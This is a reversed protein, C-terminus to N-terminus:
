WPKATRAMAEKGMKYLSCVNSDTGGQGPRLARTCWICQSSKGVSDRRVSCEKAGDHGPPQHSTPRTRRRRCRLLTARLHRCPGLVRHGGSGSGERALVLQDLYSGLGIGSSNAGPLEMQRRGIRQGAGTRYPSGGAIQHAPQVRGPSVGGPPGAGTGPVRVLRARDQGAVVEAQTLGGYIRWDLLQLDGRHTLVAEPAPPLRFWAPSHGYVGRGIADHRIRRAVEACQSSSGSGMSPWRQVGAKGDNM